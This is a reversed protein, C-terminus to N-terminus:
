DPAFNTNIKKKIIKKSFNNELNNLIALAVFIRM